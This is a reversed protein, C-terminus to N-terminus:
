RHLEPLVQLSRLHHKCRGLVNGSGQRLHLAPGPRVRLEPMAATVAGSDAGTGVVGGDGSHAVVDDFNERKSGPTRVRRNAAIHPRTDRRSECM